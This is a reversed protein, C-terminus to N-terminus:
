ASAQGQIIITTSLNVADLFENLHDYKKMIWQLTPPSILVPSQEITELEVESLDLFTAADNISFGNAIRAGVVVNKLCNNVKVRTSKTLIM